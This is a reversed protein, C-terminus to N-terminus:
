RTVETVETRADLHSALRKLARHQTMRVWAEPRGMMEGVQAASLDAAVRLVLVEAQEPTLFEAMVEIARQADMSDVTTTAPDDSALASEFESPDVVDTRRRTGRRRHEVVRRHAVTFLWSRYGSEEGQFEHISGAAALWVEAALDEADEREQFRLYRLLAPQYARFLREAAREDGLKAAALIADFDDLGAM